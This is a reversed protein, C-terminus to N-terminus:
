PEIVLPPRGGRRRLWNISRLVPGRAIIWHELRHKGPFDVLMMGALITLIGQGPLVVLVLGVLVLACGLVNKGILLAARALPHVDNWPRSPQRTRAYYDAPLRALVLPGAILGVVATAASLAAMWWLLAAHALMWDRM